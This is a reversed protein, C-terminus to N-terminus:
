PLRSAGPHANMGVTSHEDDNPWAPELVERTLEAGRFMFHKHEEFSFIQEGLFGPAILAAGDTLM